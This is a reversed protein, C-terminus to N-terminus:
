GTKRSRAARAIFVREVVQTGEDCLEAALQLALGAARAPDHGLRRNAVAESRIDSALTGGSPVGGPKPRPEECAVAYRAASFKGAPAEHTPRAYLATLRAPRDHQRAHGPPRRRRRRVPRDPQRWQPGGIAHEGDSRAAAADLDRADRSS